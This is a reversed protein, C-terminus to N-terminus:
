CNEYEDEESIFETNRCSEFDYVMDECFSNIDINLMNGSTNSSPSLSNMDMFVNNYSDDTGIIESDDMSEVTTNINIQNPTGVTNRDYHRLFNCLHKLRREKSRRNQFWVQIVRMSLGTELSLKARAHKSPKPTTLFIKNLVDLQSQKITTRPGRRKLLNNSDDSCMEGYTYMEFPYQLIPPLSSIVSHSSMKKTTSNSKGTYKVISEKSSGKKLNKKSTDDVIEFKINNNNGECSIHEECVINIISNTKTNQSEFNVNFGFKDGEALSKSCYFCKHCKPHYFLVINTQIEDKKLTGKSYNKKLESFYSDGNYQVKFVVDTKSLGDGCGNCKYPSFEKFYHNKCYVKNNRCFCSYSPDLKICCTWCRLCSEHFYTVEVTNDLSPETSSIALLNKDLIKKNCGSCSQKSNDHDIENKLNNLECVENKIQINNYIKIDDNGISDVVQSIAELPKREIFYEDFINAM